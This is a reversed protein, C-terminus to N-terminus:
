IVGGRWPLWTWATLAARAGRASSAASATNEIEESTNCGANAASGGYYTDRGNGGICTDTGSNGALEDNGDGGLVRDNGDLGYVKDNGDQGNVQDNGIGGNLGDEGEGGCITDNGGGGRIVDNGAGGVIVDALPTGSISMPDNPGDVDTDGYGSGRYITALKGLCRPRGTGLAYTVTLGMHNDTYNLDVFGLYLYTAGEPVVFEQLPLDDSQGTGVRGDGIFFVQAIAPTLEDFNHGLGDPHAPGKESFDLRAPAPDKPEADTLFVGALAMNAREEGAARGGVTDILGSVGLYSANGTEYGPCGGDGTSRYTGVCSAEGTVSPFTMVQGAAGDPLGLGTPVYGGEGRKMYPQGAAFVNTAAPVIVKEANAPSTLVLGGIVGAAVLAAANRV